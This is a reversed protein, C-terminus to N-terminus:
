SAGATPPEGKGQQAKALHAEIREAVEEPTLNTSDILVADRDRTLPSLERNRDAIDREELEQQVERLSVAAGEAAIEGAVLGQRGSRVQGPDAGDDVLIRASLVPFQEGLHM